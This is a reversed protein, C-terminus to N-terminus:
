FRPRRPKKPKGGGNYGSWHGGKIVDSVGGVITVSMPTWNKM